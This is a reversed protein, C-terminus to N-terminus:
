AVLRHPRNTLFFEYVSGLKERFFQYCAGRCSGVPGTVLVSGFTVEPDPGLGRPGETM